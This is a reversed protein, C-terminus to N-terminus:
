KGGAAGVALGEERGSAFMEIKWERGRSMERLAVIKDDM